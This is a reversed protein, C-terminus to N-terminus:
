LELPEGKARKKVATEKTPKPPKLYDLRGFRRQKPINTNLFNYMDRKSWIGQYENAKSAISVLSDHMRLIRCIMYNNMVSEFNVDDCLMGNSKKTILDDFIDFITLQIAM